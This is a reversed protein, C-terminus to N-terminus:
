RTQNAADESPASQHYMIMVGVVWSEVFHCSLIRLNTKITPRRTVGAMAALSVDAMARQADLGNQAGWFWKM